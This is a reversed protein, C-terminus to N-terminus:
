SKLPCDTTYDGYSKVKIVLGNNYKCTLNNVVKSESKLKLNKSYDSGLNWNKKMTEELAKTTAVSDPNNTMYKHVSKDAKGVAAFDFEYLFSKNNPEEVTKESKIVEVKADTNLVEVAYVSSMLSLVSLIIIKKM